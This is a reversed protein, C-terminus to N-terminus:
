LTPVSTDKGQSYDDYGEDAPVFIADDYGDQLEPPTTGPQRGEPQPPIRHLLGFSLFTHALSVLFPNSHPPPSLPLLRPFLSSAPFPHLLPSSAVCGFVCGLLGDGGWHRNPVLVVERLADFDHSYVYVRLPKDVHQLEMLRCEDLAYVRTMWRM